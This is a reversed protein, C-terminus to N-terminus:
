ETPEERPPLHGLLKKQILGSWTSVRKPSKKVYNYMFQEMGLIQVEILEDDLRGVYCPYLIIHLLEHIVSSTHDGSNADISIQINTPPCIDDWVALGANETM